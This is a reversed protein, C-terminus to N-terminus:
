ILIQVIEAYGNIYKDVTFLDFADIATDREADAAKYFISNADLVDTGSVQTKMIEYDTANILGDGNVDGYLIVTSQEYIVSHDHASVVRVICGTGVLDDNSLEVDNRLIIITTADNNFEDKIDSVTTNEDIGGIIPNDPDTRDIWLDSEDNIDVRSVDTVATIEMDDTIVTEDSILDGNEDAWGYFEHDDDTAPTPIEGKIDGFTVPTEGDNPVPVQAIENGTEDNVHIIPYMNNGLDAIAAELTAATNDILIQNDPSEKTLNKDLSKATSLATQYDSWVDAPYRGDNSTPINKAKNLAVNLASYDCPIYNVSNELADSLADVYGDVTNQNSRGIDRDFSSILEDISDISDQTWNTKDANNYQEILEDLESYDASIFEFEATLHTRDSVCVQRPNDTEGDSWQKFEYDPHTAEASVEIVTDASYTSGGIRTGSIMDMSVTGISNDESLVTFTYTFAFNNLNRVAEDIEAQTVERTNYIRTAEAVLADFADKNVADQKLMDNAADVAAKLESKDYVTLTFYPLEYGESLNFNSTSNRSYGGTGTKTHLWYYGINVQEGNNITVRTPKGDLLVSVTQPGTGNATDPLLNTAANNAYAGQSYESFYANYNANMDTRNIGYEAEQGLCYSSLPGPVFHVNNFSGTYTWTLGIDELRESLDMYVNSKSLDIQVTSTSGELTCYFMSTRGNDEVTSVTNPNGLPDPNFSRILNNIYNTANDVDGQQTKTSSRIEDENAIAAEVLAKEEATYADCNLVYIADEIAKDYESFDAPYLDTLSTTLADIVDQSYYTNGSLDYNDRINDIASQLETNEATVISEAYELQEILYRADSVTVTLVIPTDYEDNDTDYQKRSLNTKGALYTARMTPTYVATGNAVFTYECDYKMMYSAVMEAYRSGTKDPFEGTGEDTIALTPGSKQTIVPGSGSWNEDSYDSYIYKFTRVSNASDNKVMWLENAFSFEEDDETQMFYFNTGNVGFSIYWLGRGDTYETDLTHQWTGGNEASAAVTEANSIFISAPFLSFAMLVSLIISIARKTKTSTKM